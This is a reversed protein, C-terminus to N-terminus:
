KIQKLFRIGNAKVTTTSAVSLGLLFKIIEDHMKIGHVTSNGYHIFKGSIIYNKQSVINYRIAEYM